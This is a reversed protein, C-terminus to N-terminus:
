RKSVRVEAVPLILRWDHDIPIRHKLFVPGGRDPGILQAGGGATLLRALILAASATKEDTEVSSIRWAPASPGKLSRHEIRDGHDIEIVDQRSGLLVGAIELMREFDGGENGRLDVPLSGPASAERLETVVKRGFHTIRLTRTGSSKDVTVSPATRVWRISDTDPHTVPELRTKEPLASTLAEAFCLATDCTDRANEVIEAPLIPSALANEVARKFALGSAQAEATLGLFFLAAVASRHM